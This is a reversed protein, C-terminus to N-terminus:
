SGTLKSEDGETEKKTKIQNKNNDINELRAALLKEYGSEKPRYFIKKDMEPPFYHQNVVGGPYDHPYQYGQGHGLRSAGQYGTGRLHAPVEAKIQRDVEALAEEIALYSANSKPACALYTAAQALIIRGEPMGVVQLASAAAAAVQIARPDANGIDESASILLRRAIFMPDEGGKLMRAMWYLAAHPDSGRISKIFASAMDYHNDGSRDYQYLRQSFAKEATEVSIRHMGGTDGGTDAEVSHVALELANLAARADGGSMRALRSLAEPEVETKISGLGKEKNNLARSMIATIEQEDLAKFIYLRVRSLLPSTIHFFPNETTAGIFLITGEEVAALLADQQSKSFRHIEDLFLITRRNEQVWTLKARDIVKRVDAVGTSVANLRIFLAKTRVAIIRALTTKGTGPPGYFLCSSLRDGTIAKWLPSGPALIEKQGTFEELSVPRMRVALPGEEKILERWSYDILDM